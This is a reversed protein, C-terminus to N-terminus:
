ALPTVCIGRVCQHRPFNVVPAGPVGVIVLHVAKPLITVRFVRSGSTCRSVLPRLATHNPGARVTGCGGASIDALMAEASYHSQILTPHGPQIPPGCLHSGQLIPQGKPGATRYSATTCEQKGSESVQLTYSLGHATSASLTQTPGGSGGGGLGGGGGGCGALALPLLTGLAFRKTPRM